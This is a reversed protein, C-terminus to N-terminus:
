KYPEEEPVEIFLVTKGLGRAQHVFRNHIEPSEPTTAVILYDCNDVMAFRRTTFDIPRPQTGSVMFNPRFLVTTVGIEDAMTRVVEEMGNGGGLIFMFDRDDKMLTLTEALKRRLLDPDFTYRRDGMFAIRAVSGSYSDVKAM